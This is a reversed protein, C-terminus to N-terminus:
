LLILVAYHQPCGAKLLAEADRPSIEAATLEEADAQGFGMRLFEGLRYRDLKDQETEPREETVPM